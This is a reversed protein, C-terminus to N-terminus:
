GVEFQDSVDLFMEHATKARILFDTWSSQEVQGDEQMKSFTYEDTRGKIAVGDAILDIRWGRSFEAHLSENAAFFDKFAHVYNALRAFDEDHFQHGSPKIEVIHLLRGASILTFDPRKREYGIDCVV